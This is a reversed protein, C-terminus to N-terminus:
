EAATPGPACHRQGAGVEPSIRDHEAIEVEVPHRLELAFDLVQARLRGDGHWAAGGLLDLEAALGVQDHLGRRYAHTRVVGAQESRLGEPGPLIKKIQDVQEQTNKLAQEREEKDLETTISSAPVPSQERTSEAESTAQEATDKPEDITWIEVDASGSSMEPEPMDQAKLDQKNSMGDTEKVPEQEPDLQQDQKDKQFWNEWFQAYSVDAATFIFALVLVSLILNKCKM